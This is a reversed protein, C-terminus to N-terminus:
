EPGAFDVQVREIHGRGSADAPVMTQRQVVRFDLTSLGDWDAPNAAKILPLRAQRLAKNSKGTENLEGTKPDYGAKAHQLPTFTGDRLAIPRGMAEFRTRLETDESGWGWYVTPYGNVLEFDTRPVLIVGGFLQPYSHQLTYRSDADVKATEAGHWIIRTPRDVPSYDAWIPLFDVDHFCLQDCDPLLTAGANKLLGYNFTLRNAQEVILLRYALTRDVKDREFYARIHPLFAKLHEARDRYGVIIGLM